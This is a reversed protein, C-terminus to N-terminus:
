ISNRRKGSCVIHRGRIGTSMITLIEWYPLQQPATWPLTMIHVQWLDDEKKHCEICSSRGTYYPGSDAAPQSREYIIRGLYAPFALVIVMTAILGTKEWYKMGPDSPM